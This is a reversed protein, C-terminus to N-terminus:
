KIPANKVKNVTVQGKDTVLNNGQWQALGQDSTKLDEALKEWIKKKPNLVEDPSGTEYGEVYVQICFIHTM